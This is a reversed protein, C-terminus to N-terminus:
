DIGGTVEKFIVPTYTLVRTGVSKTHGELMADHPGCFAMDVEQEDANVAHGDIYRPTVVRVRRHTVPPTDCGRIACTSGELLEAASGDTPGTTHEETV